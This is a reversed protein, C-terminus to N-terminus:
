FYIEKEKEHYFLNMMTIVLIVKAIAGLTGSVSRLKLAPQIELRLNVTANLFNCRLSNLNCPM